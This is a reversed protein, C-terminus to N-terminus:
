MHVEFTDEVTWSWNMTMTELVYIKLNFKVTLISTLTTFDNKFYNTLNAWFPNGVTQKHTHTYTYTHTHTRSFSLSILPFQSGLAIEYESAISVHVFADILHNSVLYYLLFIYINATVNLWLFIFYNLRNTINHCFYFM